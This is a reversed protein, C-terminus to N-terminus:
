CVMWNIKWATAFIRNKHEWFHFQAAENGTGVNMYRHAILINGPDTQRNPQLLIPLCIKPIYLNSVSVLTHFSPSLVNIIRSKFYLPWATENTSIFLDSASM